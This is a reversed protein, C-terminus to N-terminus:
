LLFLKQQGTRNQRHAYKSYICQIHRWRIRYKDLIEPASSAKHDTSDTLDAFKRGFEIPHPTCGKTLNIDIGPQPAPIIQISDISKATDQCIGDSVVLTTIFRGSTKYTHNTSGLGIQDGSTKVIEDPPGGDGFDWSWRRNGQNIDFLSSDIFKVGVWQCHAKKEISFKAQPKSKFQVM